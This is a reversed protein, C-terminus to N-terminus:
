SCIRYSAHLVEKVGKQNSHHGRMPSMFPELNGIFRKMIQPQAIRSRAGLDTMSHSGNISAGLAGPIGQPRARQASSKVWNGSLDFLAGGADSLFETLM